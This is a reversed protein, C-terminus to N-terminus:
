VEEFVGSLALPFKIVKVHPLEHISTVAFGKRLSQMEESSINIGYLRAQSIDAKFFIKTNIVSSLGAPIDNPNQSSFIVGIQQSRGTRCITDLEDLAEKSSTNDYFRHVEDIIILIPINIGELTKTDIINRLLHRLIISGFQIGRQGAVDIVSIKGRQLIDAASIARADENDFFELASILNRLINDFTNWSLRIPLEDGRSNLTNFMYNEDRGRSFYGVFDSFRIDPRKRVYRERWYRFINPLHRGGIDSIGQLIGSLAEPEIDGVNLTIRECNDLNINQDLPISSNAPYYITFNDIGHPKKELVNWEKIISEKVPVSPQDLKLLDVDKVNIALVAGYGPLEEVFYQALYKAAVTKGSGTTGCILMQHFFVDLPLKTTIYKGDQDCLISNKGQYITALFVEPGNDSAELAQNIEEQTSRRALLQPKIFDVLGDTRDSIDMIRFASIINQCKQDQRLPELDMDIIMPSPSYPENQISDDVRLMYKRKEEEVTLFSGKPLIGDIERKSVLKIKGKDNGVVIWM